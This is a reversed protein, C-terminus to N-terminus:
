WGKHQSWYEFYICQWLIMLYHSYESNNSAIFDPKVFYSWRNQSLLKQVVPNEVSLSKELLSVFSTKQSRAIINDPLESKFADRVIPRNVGKSCLYESPIQLMFEVLRRDRLPYRMEVQYPTSFFKETSLADSWYTGLLRDYQKPRLARYNHNDLFSSEQGLIRKAQETLHPPSYQPSRRLWYWLRTYWVFHAKFFRDKSVGFQARLKLESFAQGPRGAKLLEYAILETYAYLEDGAMGSLVVNSGLQQVTKYARLHKARYPIDFPQEPNVAWSDKENLPYADDCNVWSPEINQHQCITSLYEREDCKKLADFVWSVAHIPEKSLNSNAAALTIPASDLGGSMMSSVPKIARLRAEVSKTFVEKFQEQYQRKDAYYLRNRPNPLYFAQQVIGCKELSVYHGPLVKHVGEVFTADNNFYLLGFQQALKQKNLKFSFEPHATVAIAATAICLWEDSEAYVLYRAGMSDRAATFRHRKHDVIAWAFPGIIKDLHRTEYQQYLASFLRADSLEKLPRHRNSLLHYIEDRNDIRGDWLLYVGAEIELPQREGLEEPTTWFGHYSCAVNDKILTQEYNVGYPALKEHMPLFCEKTIMHGRKNFCVAFGSM